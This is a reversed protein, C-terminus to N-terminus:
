PTIVYNRKIYVFVVAAYILNGVESFYSGVSIILFGNLMGLTNISNHSILATRIYIKFFKNCKFLLKEMQKKHDIRVYDEGIGPLQVTTGFEPQLLM